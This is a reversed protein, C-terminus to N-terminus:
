KKAYVQKGELYTALVNTKHIDTTEIELLNQDLIIFDAFKGATISGIENEKYQNYAGGMTYIYIADTIGIAHDKANIPEGVGGPLQRTIMGEMPKWPDIPSVPADSGTSIHVGLEQLPRFPYIWNLRENGVDVRITEISADPMWFYPSIDASVDLEKFRNYDKPNVFVTHSVSHRLNSGKTRTQEIADLITTITQDGVGHARVTLGMEDYELIKTKLVEPQTRWFGKNDTGEFPESMVATQGGASGDMVFKVGILNIKDSFRTPGQAIFETAMEQLWDSTWDVPDTAYITVRATLQDNQELYQYADLNWPRAWVDSISTFGYGNLEEFVPAFGREAQEEPSAREKLFEEWVANAATERLVGTLNGDNDTDWSGGAPAQNEKTIGYKEMAFSNILAAHGGLDWFFAPRDNVFRDLISFHAPQDWVDINGAKDKLWNLPGGFIWKTDPYTTLFTEIKNGFEEYSMEPSPIEINMKNEAMMDPHIHDEVLGPMMFKGALDVLETDDGKLAEIDANSGVAIFKGGKIAIAEAWEQNDDVTYIKGNIFIVDATEKPENQCSFFTMVLIGIMSLRFHIKNKMTHM